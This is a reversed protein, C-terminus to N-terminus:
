YSRDTKIAAKAFKRQALVTGTLAISVFAIGSICAHVLTAPNAIVLWTGSAATLGVLTYSLKLKTSTPMMYAMATLALSSLAVIIHLLLIM